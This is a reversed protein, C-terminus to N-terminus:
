KKKNPTKNTHGRLSADKDLWIEIGPCGIIIGPSGIIKHMASIGTINAFKKGM